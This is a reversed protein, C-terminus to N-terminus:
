PRQKTEIPEWEDIFIAKWLLALAAAGIHIAIAMGVVATGLNSVM